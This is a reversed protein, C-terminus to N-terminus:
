SLKFKRVAEQLEEAMYSLSSASSAIEEMSALQEETAASVDQSQLTTKNAIEDIERVAEVVQQTGKTMQEISESVEQIQHSVNYVFQQIQKFSDGANNVVNIGKEAEEAGKNMSAVALKTDGQISSILHRITETSKASQEALKRVEDAVVAFGKGNEGARAAEIAANLALLNTQDAIDSIVNVIQNIEESREGLSYIIEGLDRVSENIYRMQEISLQIAQEGSKVIDLAEHSTHSVNQSNVEIQHIGLSMKKVVENSHKVMETQLETGIAVEQIANAVQETAQSNQESSANLEESSSALLEAREGVDQLLQRLKASMINYAKALQGIEDESEPLNTVQINGNAIQISSATVQKLLIVKKRIALYFVTISILIIILTGVLIITKVVALGEYFEDEFVTIGIYWDWPEFQDMYTIKRRTEGNGNNFDDFYVYRDEINKALAGKVMRERNSTNEPIDGVPNSPHVQSSFKSDYGLVYGEGKYLFHSKKYDHEGNELKPGSLLIRAEEKGEELSLTGDEVQKNVAELTAFSSNVIHYLEQKGANILQNKAVYYSTAGIVSVSFVIIVTLLVLMKVSISNWRKKM